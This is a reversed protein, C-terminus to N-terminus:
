WKSHQIAVSDLVTQSVFFCAIAAVNIENKKSKRRQRKTKQAMDAQFQFMLGRATLSMRPPFCHNGEFSLLLKQLWIGLLPCM